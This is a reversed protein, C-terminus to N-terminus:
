RYDHRQHAGGELRVRPFQKLLVELDAPARYADILDGVVVAGRIDM